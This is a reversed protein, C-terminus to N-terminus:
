EIIGNEGNLRRNSVSYSAAQVGGGTEPRSDRRQQFVRQEVPGIHLTHDNIELLAQWIDDPLLTAVRPDVVSFGLIYDVRASFDFPSM